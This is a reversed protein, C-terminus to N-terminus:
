EVLALKILRHVESATLYRDMRFKARKEIAVQNLAMNSWASSKGILRVTLLRMKFVLRKRFVFRV